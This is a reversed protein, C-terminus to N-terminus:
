PTAMKVHGLLVLNEYMTDLDKTAGVKKYILTEDESLAIHITAGINVKKITELMDADEDTIEQILYVESPYFEDWSEIEPYTRM